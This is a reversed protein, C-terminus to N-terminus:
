RVAFERELEKMHFLRVTTKFPYTNALSCAKEVLRDIRALKSSEDTDTVIALVFEIKGKLQEPLTQSFQDVRRFYESLRDESVNGNRTFRTELVVARDSGSAVADFVLRPQGKVALNREFHLGFDKTLKASVLEEALLSNGQFSNRLTEAASISEASTTMDAHGESASKPEDIREDVGVIGNEPPSDDSESILKGVKILSSAGEFLRAFTEDDKFDTPAYLVHHKKYLVFFFVAVLFLPFLMLFWVYTRQIDKELVPLVATGSVEALGAFIAIVTLPNKVHGMKEVM